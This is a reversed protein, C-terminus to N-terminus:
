KCERNTCPVHHFDPHPWNDVHICSHLIMIFQRMKFIIIHMVTWALTILFIVLAVYLVIQDWLRHIVGSKHLMFILCLTVSALVLLPRAFGWSCNGCFPIDRAHPLQLSFDHVGCAEELDKHRGSDGLRFMKSFM